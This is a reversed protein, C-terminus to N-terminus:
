KQAMSSDKNTLGPYFKVLFNSVVYDNDDFKPQPEKENYENENIYGKEKRAKTFIDRKISAIVSRCVMANKGSDYNGAMRSNYRNYGRGIVKIIEKNEIEDLALGKKESLNLKTFHALFLLRNEGKLSEIIYAVVDEVDMNIASKSEDSFVKATELLADFKITDIKGM